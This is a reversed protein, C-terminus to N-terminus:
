HQVSASEENKVGSKAEGAEVYFYHGRCRAEYVSADGLLVQESSNVVRFTRSADEGCVTCVAKLKTVHDAIALLEPMPGFPAGRYDLDLGACIFRLGRKALRIAVEVISDDFFQVEDIAVLRTEDDLKKFIDESKKVPISKVSRSNHSVVDTEDYRTDIAPKFIQVPVRAIEARRVLRILEETKGSFMPGCVVEIPGAGFTGPSSLSM